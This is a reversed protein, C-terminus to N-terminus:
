GGKATYPKKMIGATAGSFTNGKQAVNVRQRPAILPYEGSAFLNTMPRLVGTRNPWPIIKPTNMGFTSGHGSVEQPIPLAPGTAIIVSGPPIAGYAM